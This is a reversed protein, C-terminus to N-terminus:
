CYPRCSAHFSENNSADMSVGSACVTLTRQLSGNVPSQLGGNVISKCASWTLYGGGGGRPPPVRYNVRLKGCRAPCSVVARCLQVVCSCCSLQLNDGVVSGEATLFLCALPPYCSTTFLMLVRLCVPVRTSNADASVSTHCLHSGCYQGQQSM